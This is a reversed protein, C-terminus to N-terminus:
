LKPKQVMKMLRQHVLKVEPIEGIERMWRVIFPYQRYEFDILHLQMIECYCSIDAISMEKTKAVYHNNMLIEDVYKLSKHQIALMQKEMEPTIQRGTLRPKIIKRYLYGACGYRINGHHWHLYADVNARQKPDKPYWHDAVNFATSLYTLIAHSEYLPMEQHVIAPVTMPPSIAQFEKTRTDGRFLQTEIIEHPINALLCLAAVARSPQSYWDIYVKVTDM